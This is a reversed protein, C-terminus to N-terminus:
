VFCSLILILNCNSQVGFIPSTERVGPSLGSQRAADGASKAIDARDATSRAAEDPCSERGCQFAQRPRGALSIRPRV